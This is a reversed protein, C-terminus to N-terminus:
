PRPCFSAEVAAVISAAAVPPVAPVPGGRFIKAAYVATQSDSSGALIKKCVNRARGEALRPDKILGRNIAKFRRFLDASQSPNLAPVGALPGATSTPPPAAAPKAPATVCGTAALAVATLLLSRVLVACGRPVSCSM